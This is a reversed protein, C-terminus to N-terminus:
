KTLHQVLQALLQNQAEAADALRALSRAMESGNANQQAFEQHILALDEHIQSMQRSAHLRSLRQSRVSEASRWRNAANSASSQRTNSHRTSTHRDSSNESDDTLDLHLEDEVDAADEFDQAATDVIYPAAADEVDPAAAEEDAAPAGEGPETPPSRPVDAEYAGQLGSITQASLYPLLIEECENLDSPEPPAGGTAVSQDLKTLKKRLRLRIDQLRKKCQALTRRVGGVAMVANTITQWLRNKTRADTKSSLCGYLQDYYPLMEQVLVLNEQESFWQARIRGQSHSRSRRSHYSRRPSRSRSIRPSRSVMSSRYTGLSPHRIPTRVQTRQFSHGQTPRSQSSKQTVPQSTNTTQLSFGPPQGRDQTRLSRRPEQMEMAVTYSQNLSAEEPNSPDPPRWEHYLRHHTNGTIPNGGPSYQTIRNDEANYYPYSILCGDLTNGVNQGDRVYTEEEKKITRMEESSQQPSRLYREGEEMKITIQEEHKHHHHISHDEQPCDLPYLPGACREPPYRNSSGDLSAFPPHSEMMTDRQINGSRCLSVPLLM